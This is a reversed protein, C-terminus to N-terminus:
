LKKREDYLTKLEERSINEPDQGDKFYIASINAKYRFMNIAQRLAHKGAEDGDYAIIINSGLAMILRYQEETIHAGFTAVATIGIEYFAWVDTIGECIVIDKKGIAEDYNYLLEKTEIGNPQHSWKPYDTSHTRRLSYGVQLGKFIIPFVLRKKLIYKEGNGKVLEVEEVYGLNFHNLTEKNFNRFTKVSKIEEPISYENLEKKKRRKMTSIFKKLEAIYSAKREIIQANQIDVDFFSALWRVADIFGCNEFHQVLTYADGGGCGGTHCFWLNNSTNVVFSTPNNGGHLKCCARIMAGDQKVSDFDYHLLLKYMDINANILSVADM